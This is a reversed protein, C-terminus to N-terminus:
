IPTARLADISDIAYQPTQVAVSYQVGRRDVWFSPSVDGASALSVLLDSAVDRETLGVQQAETRDIKLKLEPVKSVQALHVDAPVQKVEGVLKEAIALTKDESGIPGVVQLDIPAALGFNLVQTSIDPALFFFTTEPYAHHLKVRLEHLYEETPRHGEKLAILI